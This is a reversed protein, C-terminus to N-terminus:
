GEWVRLEERPYINFRENVINWDVMDDRGREM